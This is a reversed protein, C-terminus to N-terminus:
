LYKFKTATGVLVTNYGIKKTFHLNRFTTYHM